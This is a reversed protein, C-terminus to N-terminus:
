LPPQWESNNWNGLVEASRFAGVRRAARACRVQAPRNFIGALRARRGSHVGATFRGTSAM